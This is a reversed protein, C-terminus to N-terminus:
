WHAVATFSGDRAGVVMGGVMKGGVWDECKHRAEDGLVKEM